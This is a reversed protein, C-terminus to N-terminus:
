YPIGLLKREEITLKAIAAVIKQDRLIEPNTIKEYHDDSLSIKLLKRENPTLKNLATEVEHAETATHNQKVLSAPNNMKIDIGSIYSMFWSRFEDRSIDLSAWDVKNLVDNLEWDNDLITVINFLCSEITRYYKFQTLSLQVPTDNSDVGSDNALHYEEVVM